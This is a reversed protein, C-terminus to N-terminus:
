ARHSVREKLGICLLGEVNPFVTDPMESYKLLRIIVESHLEPFGPGTMTVRPYGQVPSWRDRGGRNPNFAHAVM